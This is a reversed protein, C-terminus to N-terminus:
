SEPSPSGRALSPIPPKRGFVPSLWQPAELLLQLVMGFKDKIQRKSGQPEAPLSDAQLAPSRPKIGPNSLNGQLLSLSGVATNQGPSDLPYDVPGRDSM